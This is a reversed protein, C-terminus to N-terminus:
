CNLFIFVSFDFMTEATSRLVRIAQISFSKNVGMRNIPRPKVSRESGTLIAIRTKYAKIKERINRFKKELSRSKRTLLNLLFM